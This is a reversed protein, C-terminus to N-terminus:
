QLRAGHGDAGAGAMEARAVQGWRAWYERARRVVRFALLEAHELPASDKGLLFGEAVGQRLARRCHRLREMSGIDDALTDNVAWLLCSCGWADFRVRVVAMAFVIMGDDDRVGSTSHVASNLAVGQALFFRARSQAGNPLALIRSSVM